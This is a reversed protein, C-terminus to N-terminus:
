FGGLSSEDKKVFFQMFHSESIAFEKGDLNKNVHGKSNKRM